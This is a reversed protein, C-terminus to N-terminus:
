RQWDQRMKHGFSCLVEDIKHTMIDGFHFYEGDMTDTSM